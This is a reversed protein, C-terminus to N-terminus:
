ADLLALLSLRDPRAAVRTEQWPLISVSELVAESLCLAKIGSVPGELGNERALRAFTEGGRASFFAAAKIDGNAIRQVCLATFQEVPHAAYIVHSKVGSLARAIDKGRLYLFGSKDEPAVLQELDDVAGSASRVDSFGAACARAATADGVTFVSFDRRTSQGAFIDVAHMSTFVLSRVSSLDPLADVSPTITLMPEVLVDYGRARVDDLCAAPNGSLTLIVTGRTM